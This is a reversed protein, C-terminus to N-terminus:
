QVQLKPDFLKQYAEDERPGFTQEVIQIMAQHQFQRRTPDDHPRMCVVLPVAAFPQHWASLAADLVHTVYPIGADEIAVTMVHVPVEPTTRKALRLEQILKLEEPSV